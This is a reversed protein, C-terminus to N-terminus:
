VHAHGHAADALLPGRRQGRGEGAAEAVVRFLLNAEHGHHPGAHSRKRRLVYPTSGACLFTAVTRERVTGFPPAMGDSVNGGGAASLVASSSPATKEGRKSAAPRTVATTVSASSPMSSMTACM